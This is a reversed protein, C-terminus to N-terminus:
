VQVPGSELDIPPRMAELIHSAMLEGSERTASYEVLVMFEDGGLRAVTDVDFVTAQVRRAFEKLVEDGAAHGLSDNVLKFRDLDLALVMLSAGTRMARSVARKLREEFQLRNALGTLPDFRALKALERELRKAETIDFSVSYFGLVG